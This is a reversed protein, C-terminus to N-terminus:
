SPGNAKSEDLIRGLETSLCRWYGERRSGRGALVDYRSIVTVRGHREAEAQPSQGPAFLANAIDQIDLITSLRGARRHAERLRLKAQENGSCFAVVCVWQVMASVVAPQRAPAAVQLALALDPLLFGASNRLVLAFPALVQWAARGRASGSGIRLRTRSEKWISRPDPWVM